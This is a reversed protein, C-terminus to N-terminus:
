FVLNVFILTVICLLVQARCASVKIIYSSVYEFVTIFMQQKFLEALLKLCLFLLHFCNPLQQVVNYVYSQYSEFM